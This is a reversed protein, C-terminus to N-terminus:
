PPSCSYPAFSSNYNGICIFGVGISGDLMSYAVKSDLSEYNYISWNTGSISSNIIETTSSSYNAVGYNKTGSSAKVTVNTMRSTSLNDNRVGYSSEGYTAEATVDKLVPHSYDNAVGINSNTGGVARALVNKMRPDALYENLVGYSTEGGYASAEVHEMKVWAMNRNYIGINKESGFQASANVHMMKSANNNNEVGVSTNGGEVFVEVNKLDSGSDYNYIGTNVLSGSAKATVNYIVTGEYNHYNVIARSREGGGLNEVTLDSLISNNSGLIIAGHIALSISGTLKTIGQGAGSISVYDKMVLTETLTFIGPGIVVLYTNDASADTISNVAAAPNTFDGGKASVTVVNHLKKSSSLPIVVVKSLAESRSISFFTALVIIFSVFYKMINGPRILDKGLLFFLWGM